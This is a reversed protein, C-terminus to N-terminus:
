QMTGHGHGFTLCLRPQWRAVDRCAPLAACSRLAALWPPVRADRADRGPEEGGRTDRRKSMAMARHLSPM